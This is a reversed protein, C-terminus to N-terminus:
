EKEVHKMIEDVVLRAGTNSLHNDDYYLRVGNREVVCRDEVFTDCLIKDPRIRILNTHEGIRDLADITATVKTDTKYALYSTSLNPVM